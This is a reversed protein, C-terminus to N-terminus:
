LSWNTISIEYCGQKLTRLVQYFSSKRNKQFNWFKIDYPSIHRQSDQALNHLKSISNKGMHYTNLYESCIRVSQTCLFDIRSFNVNLWISDSLWIKIDYPSIHRLSDQALNHLKSISYKDMHNTNLYESCIRVSQTCLFGNRSFNVM